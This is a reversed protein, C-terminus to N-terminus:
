KDLTLDKSDSTQTVEIDKFLFEKVNKPISGCYQKILEQQCFEVMDRTQETVAFGHVYVLRLVAYSLDLLIDQVDEDYKEDPFNDRIKEISSVINVLIDDNVM